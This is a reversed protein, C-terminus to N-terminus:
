PAMAANTASNINNYMGNRMGRGFITVGAVAILAILSILLGYEVLTQGDEDTLFRKMM